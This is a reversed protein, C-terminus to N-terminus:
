PVLELNRVKDFIVKGESKDRSGKDRRRRETKGAKGGEKKVVEM